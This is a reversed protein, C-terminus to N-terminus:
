FKHFQKSTIVCFSVQWAEPKGNQLQLFIDETQKTLQVQTVLYAVEAVHELLWSFEDDDAHGDSGQDTDM